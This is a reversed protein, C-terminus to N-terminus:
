APCQGGHLEHVHEAMLASLRNMMTIADEYSGSDPQAAIAIAIRGSRTPVLGFQRVLYAGTEDDPGWGGKFQAGVFSGLGWRQDDTIQQMLDVVPSADRLCPLHAAFRVQDALSWPTAGFVMPDDISQAADPNHRDAVDTVTDGAERLVSQVAEAAPEGGGLAIWLAQAADNDSETIAARATDALGVPDRRLAALALPVKITSWAIGTSWDGLTLVRDSGVAMVALGMHGPLESQLKAFDAALGGPLTLAMDPAPAPRVMETVPGSAIPDTGLAVSHASCASVLLASGITFLRRLGQRGPPTPDISM